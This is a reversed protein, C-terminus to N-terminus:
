FHQIFYLVLFCHSASQAAFDLTKQAHKDTYLCQKPLGFSCTQCEQLSPKLNLMINQQLNVVDLKSLRLADEGSHTNQM